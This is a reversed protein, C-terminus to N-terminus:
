KQRLLHDLAGHRRQAEQGVSGQSLWASCRVGMREGSQMGCLGQVAASGPVVRWMNCLMPHKGASITILYFLVKGANGTGTTEGM